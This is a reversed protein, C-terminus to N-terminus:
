LGSKGEVTKDVGIKGLVNKDWKCLGTKVLVTEGIGM